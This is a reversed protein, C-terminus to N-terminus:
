SGTTIRELRLARRHAEARAVHVTTLWRWGGRLATCPVERSSQCTPCGVSAVSAHLAAM